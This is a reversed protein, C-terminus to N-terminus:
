LLCLRKNSLTQELVFAQIHRPLIPTKQQPAKFLGGMALDDEPSGGAGAANSPKDQELHHLAGETIRRVLESAMFGVIELVEDSLRYETVSLPIGIWDRFKKAKKYTFSAQRCETYEIYEAKTMTRTLQDADRLRRLSEEKIQGSNLDTDIPDLDRINGDSLDCVLSSLVDWFFYARRRASAQSSAATAAPKGAPLGPASSGAKSPLAVASDNNPEEDEEEVVEGIEFPLTSAVNAVTTEESQKINKRIDKWTLFDKLRKLKPGDHRTIFL